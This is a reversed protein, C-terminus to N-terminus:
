ATGGPTWSPYDADRSCTDPHEAALRAFAADTGNISDAMHRTEAAVGERLRQARQRAVLAKIDADLRSLPVDLDSIPRVAQGEPPTSGAAIAPIQSVTSM